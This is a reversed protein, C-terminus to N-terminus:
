KSLRVISDAAASRTTADALRRLDENTLSSVRAKAYGTIISDHADHTLSAKALTIIEKVSLREKNAAMYSTLVSDHASKYTTKKAIQVAQALTLQSVHRKVFNELLQNHVEHTRSAAALGLVDRVKSFDVKGQARLALSPLVVLNLRRLSDILRGNSAIRSNLSSRFFEGLKQLVIMNSQANNIRPLIGTQFQVRVKQGVSTESFALDLKESVAEVFALEQGLTALKEDISKIAPRIQAIEIELDGILEGAKVSQERVNVSLKQLRRERGGRILNALKMWLSADNDVLRSVYSLRKTFKDVILEAAKANQEPLNATVANNPDKLYTSIQDVVDGLSKEFNEVAEIEATGNNPDEFLASIKKALEESRETPSKVPAQVAVQDVAGIEFIQHCLDAAGANVTWFAFGIVIGHAIKM